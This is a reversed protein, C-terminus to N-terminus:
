ELTGLKQGVIHLLRGVNQKFSTFTTSLGDSSLVRQLKHLQRRRFFTLTLM